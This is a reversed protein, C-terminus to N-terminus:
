GIFIDPCENFCGYCGGVKENKYKKAENKNYEKSTSKNLIMILRTMVHYQYHNDNVVIKKFNVLIVFRKSFSSLIQLVM